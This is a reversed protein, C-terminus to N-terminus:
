PHTQNPINGRPLGESARLIVWSPSATLHASSGVGLMMGPRACVAPLRLTGTSIHHLPLIFLPTFFGESTFHSLPLLVGESIMRCRQIEEQTFLTYIFYRDVTDIENKQKHLDGAQWLQSRIPKSWTHEGTIPRVEYDQGSQGARVTTKESQDAKEGETDVEGALAVSSLASGEPSDLSGATAAASNLQLGVSEETGDPESTLFVSGM